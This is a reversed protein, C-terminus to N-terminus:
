AFGLLETRQMFMGSRIMRLKLNLVQSTHSNNDVYGPNGPLAGSRVELRRSGIDM